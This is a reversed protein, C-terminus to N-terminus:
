NVAPSLQKYEDPIDDVSNIGTITQCGMHGYYIRKIGRSLIRNWSNELEASHYAPVSFLPCLDGVLADGDDTILSVSDDSHGPTHIIEGCIGLSSLLARSEEIDFARVASDDIPYFSVSRDRNFYNDAAHLYKLQEKAAILTVGDDVILRAIGMHDPHYHSILLFRLDGFPIGAAKLASRFKYYTGAWDTDFLLCGSRGCVVFCSTQGYSILTIENM